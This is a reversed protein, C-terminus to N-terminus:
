VNNTIAYYPCFRPCPRRDPLGSGTESMVSSRSSPSAPRWRSDAAWFARMQYEIPQASPVKVLKAWVAIGVKDCTKAFGLLADRCDRGADSRTGASVMRQTVYCRIDNESGNTHLPTRPNCIRNRPVCVLSRIYNSVEPPTLYCKSLVIINELLFGALGAAFCGFRNDQLSVVSFAFHRISDKSDTLTSSGPHVIM